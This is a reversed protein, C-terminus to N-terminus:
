GGGRCTCIFVAQDPDVAPDSTIRYTVGDITIQDNQAPVIGSPLSAGFISIEYDTVVTQSGDPVQAKAEKWGKGPYSTSTPNTGSTLAGPTRAGAANKILTVNKVHKGMGKNLQKAIFGSLLKPM